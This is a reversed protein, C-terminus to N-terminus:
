RVCARVCVIVWGRVCLSCKMIEREPSAVPPLYYASPLKKLVLFCVDTIRIDSLMLGKEYFSVHTELNFVFHLICVQMYGLLKLYANFGNIFNNRLQDTWDASCPEASLAYRYFTAFYM